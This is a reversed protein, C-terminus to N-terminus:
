INGSTFTFETDYEKDGKTSPTLHFLFAGVTYNSTNIRIDTYGKLAKALAIFDNDDKFSCIVYAGINKESETKGPVIEYVISNNEYEAPSASINNETDEAVAEKTMVKNYSDLDLLESDQLAAKTIKSEKFRNGEQLQYLTAATKINGINTYITSAKAAATASGSAVLMAGSLTALIAIVILLEVLTFGKRTRKM